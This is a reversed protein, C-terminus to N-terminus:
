IEKGETREIMKKEAERQRKSDLRRNFRNGWWFPMWGTRSVRKLKGRKM